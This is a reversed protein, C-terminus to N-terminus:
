QWYIVRYRDLNGAEFDAVRVVVSMASSGIPHNWLQLWSGGDAPVDGHWGRACLSPSTAETYAGLDPNLPLRERAAFVPDDDDLAQSANFWWEHFSHYSATYAPTAVIRSEWPDASEGVPVPLSGIDQDRYGEPARPEPVWRCICPEVTAVSLFM